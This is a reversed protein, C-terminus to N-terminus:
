DGADELAASLEEWRTYSRELSETVKRQEDLAKLLKAKDNFFDPNSIDAALKQNAIELEAIKAELQSYEKKWAQKQNNSVSKKAPRAAASAHSQNDISKAENKSNAPKAAVAADKLNESLSSRAEAIKREVYEPYTLNLFNVKSGSEFAEIELLRDALPGVFDRDHSVVCLTGDYDILAQLLVQKSAMDLHNTPEDLLLFNSPSLLLKALAVRAKEGGSLVSCKKHVSDGTFLFAGAIARVQAIPMSPATAELEETVTSQMNLTEAQHQSYYGVRVEHGLKAEGVTPKLEQALMRLLTTKGAGNIGVIATRTGKKIQFNLDKFLTKSGFKLGAGIVNVIEKGSHPAPPFRFRVKAADEPMEILEMKELQKLRSQAQRAKTAKAGFRDVFAEIENIKNQQAEYQSKLLELRLAKQQGASELNGKYSWIKKQDIEFVERVIKNLFQADHSIILMAGQSRQLFEELWLLSELDLHNTPEDLLLLDPDMLLIRSLAVRMLWGGSFESLSREFDTTKFGMGSLIAKARSELKYEDLHELEEQIRGYRALDDSTADVEFAKELDSKLKLLVDRRGDLRMVEGLINRGSMKPLDQPLHGISLQQAKLIQGEDPSEEGLIMRILTSKGAGNPGVLAVRSRHDIFAEAGNFLM